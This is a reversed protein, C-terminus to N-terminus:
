VDPVASARSTSRRDPVLDPRGRLADALVEFRMTSMATAPPWRLFSTLGNSTLRSLPANDNALRFGVFKMESGNACAGPKRASSRALLFADLRQASSNTISVATRTASM